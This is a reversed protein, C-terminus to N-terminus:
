VTVEKDLKEVISNFESNFLVETCLALKSTLVLWKHGAYEYYFQPIEDTTIELVPRVGYDACTETLDINGDSKVYYAQGDKVNSDNSLWWCDKIHLDTYKSIKHYEMVTLLRVADVKVSIENTESFDDLAKRLPVGELIKDILRSVSM